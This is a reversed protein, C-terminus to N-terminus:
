FRYQAGFIMGLNYYDHDGFQYGFDAWININKYLYSEIGTKIEGLNRSGSQNVRHTNMTISFPKTNYLWNAELFLQGGFDASANNSGLIARVGLRSQLNDGDGKVKTGNSDIHKNADVGMWTLQGQPQLLLDYHDFKTALFTYGTELSATYGKLDYKESQLDQGHVTGDLDSRMLWGDVYAGMKTVDNEYWTGYLGFSYGDVKGSSRKGKKNRAVDNNNRGYGAVAGLHLRDNNNISWTAIDGGLLTVNWNNKVDLQNDAKFKNHSYQHRLWMSTTKQEGTIRDIYSTEGQRDHLRLNFMTNAAVLNGLYSGAEPRLISKSSDLSLKSTLYWNKDNTDAGRALSYDYAGAVIRGQQEFNGDSNGKVEILKIGEITQDGLGGINNVQVYTNGSTNGAVILKDTLSDDGNLGSNMIILGNNGIYDGEVTLTHFNNDSRTIDSHNVFRITSNDNTLNTLNSDGDLEWVSDNQLTINAIATEDKQVKGSVFSGNDALLNVTTIGQEWNPTDAGTYNQVNMLGAKGILSSKDLVNVQLTGGETAIGYGQESVISSRQLDVTSNSDSGNNNAIGLLMYIGHADKGKTQMASDKLSINGAYQVMAAHSGEGSTEVISHNNLYSNGYHYSYVGVSGNGQTLIQSNDLSIDAKGRSWIGYSNDGKTTVTSHNTLETKNTTYNGVIGHSNKGETIIRSNDWYSLAGHAQGNARRYQASYLGYANDNTTHVTVNNFYATTQVPSSNRNNAGGLHVGIDESNITGNSLHVESGFLAYVGYGGSNIEFNNIKTINNFNNLAVGGNLSLGYKSSNITVNNLDILASGSSSIGTGTTTIKLDHGIFDTSTGTSGPYTGVGQIKVADCNSTNCNVINNETQVKAGDGVNFRGNITSDSIQAETKDRTISIYDVSQSKIEHGSQQDSIIVSQAYLASSGLSTIALIISQSLLSKKPFLNCKM